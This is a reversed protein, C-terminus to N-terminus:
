EMVEMGYRDVEEKTLYEYLTVGNYLLNARYTLDDYEGIKCVQKVSLEEGIIDALLPLNKIQLSIKGKPSTASFSLFDYGETRQINAATTLCNLFREVQEKNAKKM